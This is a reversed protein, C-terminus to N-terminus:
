KEEEVEVREYRVRGAGGRGNRRWGVGRLTSRRSMEREEEVREYHKRGGEHCARGRGRWEVGKMVGEEEDALKAL